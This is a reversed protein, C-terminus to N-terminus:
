REIWKLKWFMWREKDYAISLSPLFKEYKQVFIKAVLLSSSKQLRSQLNEWERVPSYSIKMKVLLWFDIFVKRELSYPASQPSASNMATSPFTLHTEQKGNLSKGGESRTNFNKLRFVVKAVRKKERKRLAVVDLYENEHTFLLISDVCLYYHQANISFQNRIKLASLVLM